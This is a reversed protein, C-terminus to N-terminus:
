ALAAHSRPKPKEQSKRHATTMDTGPRTVTIEHGDCEAYDM